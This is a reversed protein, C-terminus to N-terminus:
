IQCLADKPSPSELKNLHLVMWNEYLLFQNKKKEKNVSHYDYINISLIKTKEPSRHPGQAEQYLLPTNM